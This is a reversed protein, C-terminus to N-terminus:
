ELHNYQVHVCREEVVECLGVTREGEGFVVSFFCRAVNDRKSESEETDRERKQRKRM